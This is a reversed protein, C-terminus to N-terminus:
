SASYLGLTKDKGGTGLPGVVSINWRARRWKRERTKIVDRALERPIKRNSLGKLLSRAFNTWRTWDLREGEGM